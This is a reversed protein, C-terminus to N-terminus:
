GDTAAEGTEFAVGLHIESLPINLNIEPMRLIADDGALVDSVWDDGKRALALAAAAPTCSAIVM